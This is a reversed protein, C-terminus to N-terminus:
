DFHLRFDVKVFLENEDIESFIVKFHNKSFKGRSKPLQFPQFLKDVRDSILTLSACNVLAFFVIEVKTERLISKIFFVIEVM